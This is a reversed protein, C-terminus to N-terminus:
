LYYVLLVCFREYMDKTVSAQMIAFDVDSIIPNTGQNNM